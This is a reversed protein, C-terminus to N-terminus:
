RGGPSHIALAPQQYAVVTTRARFGAADIEQKLFADVDKKIAQVVIVNAPEGPPTGQRRRDQCNEVAVMVAHDDPRLHRINAIHKMAELLTRKLNEVKQEDYPPAPREGTSRAGTARGRMSEKVERWLADEQTDKAQRAEPTADPALPFDVEVLFLAGFRPLFLSRTSSKDRGFPAASWTRTRVNANDLLRDLVRCMIHLDDTLEALAPAAMAPGPVILVAGGSAAGHPASYGMAVAVPDSRPTGLAHRRIVDTRPANTSIAMSRTQVVLPAEQQAAGGALLPLTLVLTIGIIRKM